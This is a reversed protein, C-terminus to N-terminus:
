YKIPKYHPPPPIKDSEEVITSTLYFGHKYYISNVKAEALLLNDETEEDNDEVIAWVLIKSDSLGLFLGKPKNPFQSVEYLFETVINLIYTRTSFERARKALDIEDGLILDHYMKKTDENAINEKMLFHDAEITSLLSTFFADLSDGTPAETYPSIKKISMPKIILIKLGFNLSFIEKPLM